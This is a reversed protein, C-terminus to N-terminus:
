VDAPHSSSPHHLTAPELREGPDPLCSVSWEPHSCCFYELENRLNINDHPVFFQYIHYFSAAPTVQSYSRFLRYLFPPQIHSCRWHYTLHSPHQARINSANSLIDAAYPPLPETITTIPASLKFKDRVTM